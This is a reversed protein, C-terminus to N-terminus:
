ERGKALDRVLNWDSMKLEKGAKKSVLALILHKEKLADKRAAKRSKVGKIDKAMRLAHNCAIIRRSLTIEAASTAYKQSSAM